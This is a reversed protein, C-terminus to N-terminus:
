FCEAVFRVVLYTHKDEQLSVEYHGEVCVGLGRGDFVGENM